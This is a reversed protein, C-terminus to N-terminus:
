SGLDDLKVNTARCGLRAIVGAREANVNTVLWYGPVGISEVKLPGSNIHLHNRDEALYRRTKRKNRTFEEEDLQAFRFMIEASTTELEDVFEALFKALTRHRFLEFTSRGADNRRAVAFRRQHSPGNGALSIHVAHFAGDSM